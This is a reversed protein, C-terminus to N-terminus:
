KVREHVNVFNKSGSRSKFETPPTKGDPDFSVKLMDADIEYIPRLSGYPAHARKM